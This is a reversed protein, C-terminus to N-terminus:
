KASQATQATQNGGKIASVASKAGQVMDVHKGKSAAYIELVVFIAGAYFSVTSLIEVIQTIFDLLPGLLPIQGLLAKAIGSAPHHLTEEMLEFIFEGIAALLIFKMGKGPGGLWASFAATLELAKKALTKVLM